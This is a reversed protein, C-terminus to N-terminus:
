ELPHHELFHGLLHLALEPQTGPVMHGAKRVSAFTLNRGLRFTTGGVVNPGYKWLRYPEALPLRFQEQMQKLWFLTGTIPVCADADGSYVLVRYHEVLLPYLWYSARADMSYNSSVADSCPEWHREPDVHLARKHLLTNLFTYVGIIDDCGLDDRLLSANLPQKFCKGYIDYISASTRNFQGELADQAQQCSDSSYDFACAGRFAAWDRASYFHREALYQYVFFSNGSLGPEFCERPHTCANGVMLGRLRLRDNEATDQLRNYEHIRLALWPVYVGAYSEGSLYLDRLQLEPFKLFFSLLAQLNDESVSQDSSGVPGTSFGVGGPSELYLVSANRNWAFPNLELETSNERFRFPGNETWAGLLSSCGPGGNLWLLLPDAAPKHQSLFLTYFFSKSAGAWLQGAYM